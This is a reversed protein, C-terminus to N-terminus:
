LISKKNSTEEKELNYQYVAEGYAKLLNEVGKLESDTLSNIGFEKDFITKLEHTSAAIESIITEKTKFPAPKNELHNNTNIETM